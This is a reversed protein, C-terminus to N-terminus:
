TLSALMAIQLNERISSLVEKWYKIDSEQFPYALRKIVNRSRTWLRGSSTAPIADELRTRITAIARACEQISTKTLAIATTTDLRTIITELNELLNVLTDLERTIQEAKKKADKVGNTYESLKDYLQLSLSIVGVITGAVEAM